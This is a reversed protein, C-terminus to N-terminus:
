LVCWFKEAVCCSQKKQNRLIIRRRLGIQLALLSTSFMLPLLFSVLITVRVIDYKYHFMSTDSLWGDCVHRILMCLLHFLIAKNAEYPFRQWEMTSASLDFCFFIIKQYTLGGYHILKERDISNFTRQNRYTLKSYADSLYLQLLALELM